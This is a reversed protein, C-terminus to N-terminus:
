LIKIYRPRRLVPRERWPLQDMLKEFVGRDDPWEDWDKKEVRKNEDFWIQAEDACDNEWIPDYPFAVLRQGFQAGPPEVTDALEVKIALRQGAQPFAGTPPGLIAVVEDYTMGIEIRDFNEKTIGPKPPLLALVGLTLGVVAAIAGAILLLRKKKM